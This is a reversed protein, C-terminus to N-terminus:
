QQPEAAPAVPAKPAATDSSTNDSPTNAEANRAEQDTVTSDKAPAETKVNEDSGEDNRPYLRNGETLPDVGENKPAEPQVTKSDVM